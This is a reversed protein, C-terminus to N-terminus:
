LSCDGKLLTMVYGFKKRTITTENIERTHLIIKVTVPQKQLANSTYVINELYLIHIHIHLCM